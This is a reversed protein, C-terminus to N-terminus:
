NPALARISSSERLRMSRCSANLEQNSKAELKLISIPFTGAYDEHSSPHPSVAVTVSCLQELVGTCM